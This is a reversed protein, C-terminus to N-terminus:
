NMEIQRFLHLWTNLFYPFEYSTSFDIEPQKQGNEGYVVKYKNQEKMIWGKAGAKAAENREIIADVLECGKLSLMQNLKFMSEDSFPYKLPQPLSNIFSDNNLQDKEWTSQGLLHTFCRNLPLLVKDTNSINELALKLEVAIGDQKQLTQVLSHLNFEAGAIERNKNVLEYLNNQPHHLNNQSNPNKVPVKLIYNRYFEKEDPTLSKLMDSVPKLAEKNVTIVNENLLKDILNQLAKEDTKSLSQKMVEKFEGTWKIKMDRFPRIYKGYIGYSRQNSLLTDVPRTSISFATSGHQIVKNVFDTGNFSNEELYIKRAYACVQEFKLFFSLFGKEPRDGYFYFAYSLIMFDRLNVSVTSLHAIVKHGAAAWLSQFGLPDRSGKVRYNPDMESFFFM